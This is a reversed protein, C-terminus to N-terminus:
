QDPSSFKVGGGPPVQALRRCAEGDIWAIKPYGGVTPGDRMTVVPRGEGTIQVSGVLVPESPMLAPPVALSPGELRVGMRDSRASVTWDAAFFARRAEAGFEGWQPGRWVRVEIRHPLLPPDAGTPRGACVSPDGLTCLVDGKALARGPGSRPSVAASGLVLPASWGGPAALYAYVGAEHRTFALEEGRRVLRATGPRWGMSAGAVALWGDRRVRFRAGQLALEIVVAQEPNGLLRNAEGAAAVDMWGGPPVGFRKLGPRGADQWTAGCGPALVELFDFM